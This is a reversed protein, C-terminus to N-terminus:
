VTSRGLLGGSIQAMGVKRFTTGDLLENLPCKKRLSPISTTTTHLTLLSYTRQVSLM